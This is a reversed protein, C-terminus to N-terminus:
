FIFKERSLALFKKEVDFKFKNIKIFKPIIRNRSYFNKILNDKKGHCDLLSNFNKLEDVQGPYEKFVPSRLQPLFDHIKNLKEKLLNRYTFIKENRDMNKMLLNKNILDEERTIENLIKNNNIKNESSFNFTKSVKYPTSNNPSILPSCYLQSNPSIM